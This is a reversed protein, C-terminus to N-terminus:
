RSLKGWERLHKLSLAASELPPRATWDQEVVYWEVGNAEAAAFIPAFDIVGEGIEAYTPTPSATMDKLHILPCRGAYKQIVTVPDVGGYKIWYVDPEFKVLEPDCNGLLVDIAYDGDIRAFEFDHNHYSLRAGLETCRRGMRNVSDALQRYGSRREPRLWPIIVDPTGLELCREVEWDLREELAELTVHCGAVTLGLDGLTRKLASTAPERGAFWAMQVAPYGIEAVAKLTGAFDKDFDQRVTYIQLAIRPNAVPVEPSRSM